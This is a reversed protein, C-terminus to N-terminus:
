RKDRRWLFIKEILNQLFELSNCFAEPQESATATIVSEKMLGWLVGSENKEAGDDMEKECLSMVASMAESTETFGFSPHLLSEKMRNIAPMFDESETHMSTACFISRICASLEHKLRRFIPVSNSLEAKIEDLVIGQNLSIVSPAQYGLFGIGDRRLNDNGAFTHDTLSAATFDCFLM